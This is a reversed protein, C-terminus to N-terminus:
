PRPWLQEDLWGDALIAYDKFDVKKDKNLDALMPSLAEPNLGLNDTILLRDLLTGDERYAIELTHTGAALTFYVTRDEPDDDSYVDDWHWDSGYEVGNWRVWGSSHNITQTTAGPIRVWFSDDSGGPAIVRCVVKYVGAAVNFTYTARGLAPPNGTSSNGPVVAIYQGGSADARDSWVQMPATITNASEAELWIGAGSGPTLEELLWQGAMVEFEGYNVVCDEVYDLKAFDASRRLLFCRSPYLRIDDFYLTGSGGPQPNNRNGIGVTIMNINALNVGQDSFQKLDILWETWTDIQTASPNDHYVVAPTGGSNALAVYMSEATNSLIGIDQSLWQGTITGTVQVGSFKAQCTVGASHSTLALGVYVDTGMVINRPNWVLPQWTAGDSSYFGRFNNAVDRELKIWYPVTLAQQEATAVSSDSTASGDTDVRAQYRCGRTPTGDPRTPTMYVAAFKSGPELTERIM